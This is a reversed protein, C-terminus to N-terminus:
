YKATTITKDGTDATYTSTANGNIDAKITWAGSAVGVGIPNNATPNGTASVANQDTKYPNKMGLDINMYEAVDAATLTNTADSCPVATTAGADTFVYNGSGAACKATEANLLSVIQSYMATTAQKKANATYGSYTTIGVASLIGIIAIVVLLEILSFGKKAKLSLNKM